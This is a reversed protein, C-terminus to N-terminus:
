KLSNYQSNSIGTVENKVYHLYVSFHQSAKESKLRIVRELSCNFCIVQNRTDSNKASVNPLKGLEVM